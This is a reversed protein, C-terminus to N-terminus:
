PGAVDRRGVVIEARRLRDELTRRRSALRRQSVESRVDAAMVWADEGDRYYGPDRGTVEFGFKRYLHYAAGNSPRMELTVVELGLALMKDIAFLLLLDGFGRGRHDPRVAITTIHGEHGQWRFGVYGVVRGGKTADFLRQLWREWSRDSGGPAEDEPMLLVHYRARGRRLERQFASAPWPTPFSMRDIAAVEPVDGPEMPGLTYRML